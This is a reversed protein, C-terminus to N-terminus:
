DAAPFFGLVRLSDASRPGHGVSARTGYCWPLDGLGENVHGHAPLPAAASPTHVRVDSEPAIGPPALPVGPHSPEGRHQDGGHGNQQQAAPPLVAAKRTAPMPGPVDATASPVLPAGPDSKPSNPMPSPSQACVYFRLTHARLAEERPCTRTAVARSRAEVSVPVRWSDPPNGTHEFPRALGPLSAALSPDGGPPPSARPPSETWRATSSPPSGWAM